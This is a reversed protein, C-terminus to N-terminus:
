KFSYNPNTIRTIFNDLGKDGAIYVRDLTYIGDKISAWRGDTTVAMKYKASQAAKVTNGNHSGYPYAVFSVKKNLNKELFEKSSKLEKLQANYGLEGLKPHTLTHSEIDIGNKDMEKLQNINLYEGKGIYSTIVFITAKFGFSKLIPYANKYNDQYGDDFTIVVSKENVPVNNILADYAESLSLTTYGNDKLYKMQEEFKEKPLRVPNGKEYAISHYMLIPIGRNSVIVKKINKDKTDLKKEKVKTNKAIKKLKVNSQITNKMNTGSNKNYLIGIGLILLIIVGVLILKKKM